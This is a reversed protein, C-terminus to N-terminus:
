YYLKLRHSIPLLLLLSSPWERTKLMTNEQFPSFVIDKKIYKYILYLQGGMTNFKCTKKLYNGCLICYNRTNGASDDSSKAPLAYFIVCLKDIRFKYDM